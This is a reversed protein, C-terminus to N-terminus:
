TRSPTGDANAASFAWVTGILKEPTELQPLHGTETLLEFRAGPIADAYARGYEPDAIRDSEGWVVLTPEDVESLRGIPPSFFDVIPHGAVEIGVADVLVDSSM